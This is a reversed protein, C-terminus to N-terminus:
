SKPGFRSKKPAGMEEEDDSNSNTGESHSDVSENQKSYDAMDVQKLQALLATRYISERKIEKKGGQLLPSKTSNVFNLSDIKKNSPDFDVSDKITDTKGNIEGPRFELSIGVGHPDKALKNKM